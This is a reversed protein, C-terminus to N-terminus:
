KPPLRSFLPVNAVWNTAMGGWGSLNSQSQGPEKMITIMIMITIEGEGLSGRCTQNPKIRNSQTQSQPWSIDEGIRGEYKM